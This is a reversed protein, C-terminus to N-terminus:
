YICFLCPYCIMLATFVAGGIDDSGNGDGDNGADDGDGATCSVVGDLSSFDGAVISVVAPVGSELFVVLVAAVPFVVASWIGFVGGTFGAMDVGIEVEVAVAVAVRVAGTVVGAVGMEVVVVDVARVVVVARDRLFSLSIDIRPSPLNSDMIFCRAVLRRSFSSFQM